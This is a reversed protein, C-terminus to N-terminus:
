SIIRKINHSVGVGLPTKKKLAAVGHDSKLGSENILVTIQWSTERVSPDQLCCAAPLPCRAAPESESGLHGVIRVPWGHVNESEREGSSPEKRKGPAM